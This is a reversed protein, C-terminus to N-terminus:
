NKNLPFRKLMIENRTKITNSRFVQRASENFDEKIKDKILLKRWPKFIYIVLLACFIVIFTTM